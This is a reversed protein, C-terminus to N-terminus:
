KKALKYFNRFLEAVLIPGTGGPTPTYFELHQISSAPNQILDPPYGFDIVGAGDKLWDPNILNAQGVGSIVLDADKLEEELNKTEIDVEKISFQFNFISFQSLWKVIPKGVLFGKAGVVAVILGDGDDNQRGAVAKADAPASAAILPRLRLIEDDLKQEIIYKIVDGVVMVVPAEVGAEGTLNDVDKQSDLKLLVKDRDIKKPLPLQVIIGGVREDDSLREAVSELEKQRINIDLEYVKFDVGLEEAVRQKQKIFSLSAPDDGVLVVVLSKNPKPQKKLGEVIGQAIKRGDVKIM